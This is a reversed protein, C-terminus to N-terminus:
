NDEAVILVRPFALEKPHQYVREINATAYTEYLIEVDIDQPFEKLKEILEAVKM